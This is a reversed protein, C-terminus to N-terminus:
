KTKNNLYLYIAFIEIISCILLSVFFYINLNFILYSLVLSPIPILMFFYSVFLKIYPNTENVPKNEKKTKLVPKEQKVQKIKTKPKEVIVANDDNPTDDDERYGCYHCTAGKSSLKNGCKSCFM